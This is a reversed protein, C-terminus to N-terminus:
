RRQWKGPQNRGQFVYSIIGHAIERKTDIVGGIDMAAISVKMSELLKAIPVGNVMVTDADFGCQKSNAIDDRIVDLMTYMAQQLVDPDPGGQEVLQAANEMEDLAFQLEMGDRM